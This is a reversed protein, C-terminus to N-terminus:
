ITKFTNRATLYSYAHNSERLYFPLILNRKNVTPVYKEIVIITLLHSETKKKLFFITNLFVNKNKAIQKFYVCGFHLYRKITYQLKRLIFAEGRLRM